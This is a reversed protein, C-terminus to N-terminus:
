IARGPRIAAIGCRLAGRLQAWATKARRQRVAIWTSKLGFGASYAASRRKVAARQRDPLLEAIVASATLRETLNVGTQVRQATDSAAHVRYLALPQDLFWGQGFAAIRAWMEWDAAHPLDTRFGGVQEYVRRRVVISAPRIRNSVALTWLADTWKGSGSRESRTHATIADSEDVYTTRCVAFDVVERDFTELMREYFGPLVGDDGHLLHVLQGRSRRVCENFNGVAGLGEPNRHYRVSGHGLREVVLDPHDVSGDDIVEIQVDDRGGVQRVVEPLLRELYHACNYVPIMVSLRFEAENHEIEPPDVM